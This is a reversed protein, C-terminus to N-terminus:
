AAKGRRKAVLAAASAKEVGGERWTPNCSPRDHPVLSQIHTILDAGRWFDRRGIPIYQPFEGKRVLRKVSRLDYDCYPKPLDRHEYLLNPDLTTM